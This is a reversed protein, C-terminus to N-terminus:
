TSHFSVNTQSQTSNAILSPKESGKEYYIIYFVPLVIGILLMVLVANWWRIGWDAGLYSDRQRARPTGQLGGSGSLLDQNLTAEEIKQDMEWFYQTIDRHDSADVAADEPPETVIVSSCNLAVSEQNHETFIGHMKVPIKITKLAYM